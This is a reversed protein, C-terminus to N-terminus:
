RVAQSLVSKIAIYATHIAPLLMAILIGIIAIVVLLETLSKACKAIKIRM